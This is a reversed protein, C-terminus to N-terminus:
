RRFSWVVRRISDDDFEDGNWLANGIRTTESDLGVYWTVPADRLEPIAEIAGGLGLLHGTWLEMVKAVASLGERGSTLDLAMDFRDSRQWYTEANADNLVEIAAEAPLGLMSVLPSVPRQSTGAITEEDAAILSNEHMPDRQTRYFLEGARLISPHTVDNLANRLVAHVLQNLFLPPTRGVGHRILDVYGAELTKHALLYDRFSTLVQWNERADVDTIALIESAAVPRRPDLLLASHLNREAPCADPPPLLEPRALYVKLFDDTVVYGGGADRDLFHHGCSLWFDRM